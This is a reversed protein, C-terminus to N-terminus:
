TWTEGCPCHHDAQHDPPKTCRHPGQNMLPGTTSIDDCFPGTDFNSTDEEYDLVDDDNYWWYDDITTDLWYPM